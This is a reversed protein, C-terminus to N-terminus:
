VDYFPLSVFGSALLALGVFAVVDMLFHAIILPMIRGWRSYLYGFALGMVFNGVFGWPGQYLHYSGRLTATALLTKPLSVGLQRLRVTFYGLLLVEELLAAEAADLLLLFYYYFSEGGATITTAFGLNLSVFYAAAGLVGVALAVGVGRAFDHLKIWSEGRAWAERIPTRTHYLLVAALPLPTLSFLFGVLHYTLDLLPRDPTYTSTMSVVQAKLNVEPRTYYEVLRLVSYVGSRGLTLFAVIALELALVRRSTNEPM